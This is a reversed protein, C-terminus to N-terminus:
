RARGLFAEVIGAVQGSRRTIEAHDAGPLVALQADPLLRQMQAAHAVTAVDRDGLVLLTPVEVSKIEAETWGQFGRMREVSKDFFSQLDGPRPATKRYADQLEQPMDQLKAHDFGQWFEPACGERSYMMSELILKRVVEPHDLAIQLAIHGGNSYGFLDAKPVQLHRLLAVADAASQEFSFPRDVDATRGHGQQEFAIIPRDKSLLPLLNAFSTEITSGGGHLLLLPVGGPPGHVEFYMELGNIPAYSM